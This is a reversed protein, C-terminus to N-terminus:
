LPLDQLKIALTKELQLRMPNFGCTLAHLPRAQLIGCSGEREVKPKFVVQHMTDICWTMM